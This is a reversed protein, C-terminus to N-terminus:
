DNKGNHRRRKRITDLYEALYATVLLVVLSSTALIAALKLGDNRFIGTYHWVSVAFPIFFLTIHKIHVEAVAEVWKLKFGFMLAIFLIAMGVISGTVPLDLWKVLSNGVLYILLITLFQAIFRVM